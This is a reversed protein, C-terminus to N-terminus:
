SGPADNGGGPLCTVRALCATWVGGSSERGRRASPPTTLHCICLTLMAGNPRAAARALGQRVLSAAAIWHCRRRAAVPAAPEALGTLDALQGTLYRRMAQRPVADGEQQVGLAVEGAGAGQWAGGRRKIKVRRGMCAGQAAFRRGARANLSAPFCPGAPYAALASARLRAM